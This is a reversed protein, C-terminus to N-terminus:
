YYADYFLESGLIFAIVLCVILILVAGVITFIYASKSKYVQETNSVDKLEILKKSSLVILAICVLIVGILVIGPFRM